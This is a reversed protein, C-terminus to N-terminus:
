IRKEKPEPLSLLVTLPILRFFCLATLEEIKTPAQLSSFKILFSGSLLSNVITLHDDSQQRIHKIKNDNKTFLLYSM